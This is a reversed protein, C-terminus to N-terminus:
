NKEDPAGSGIIDGDYGQGGPTGDRGLSVVDYPRGGEGPKLYVFPKGWPDRPISKEKLYPGDWNRADSPQTILDDMKDPYKGVDLKYMEIANEVSRMSARAATVKAKDDKGQVNYAVVGLLIGLIVVVVMLELLTFGRSLRRSAAAMALRPNPGM